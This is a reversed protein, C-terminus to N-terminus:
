AKKQGQKPGQKPAQTTTIKKAAPKATAANSEAKPTRKRRAKLVGKLETPTIKYDKIKAKVDALVSVRNAELEKEREAQLKEMQADIEAIRSMKEAKVNTNTRSKEV